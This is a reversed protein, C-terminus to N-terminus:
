ARKCREEKRRWGRREIVCVVVIARRREGGVGAGEHRRRAEAHEVAELGVEIHGRLEVHIEAVHAFPQGVVRRRLLDRQLREEVALNDHQLQRREVRANTGEIRAAGELRGELRDLASAGSADEDEDGVRALRAILPVAAILPAVREVERDRDDDRRRPLPASNRMMTRPPPEVVTVIADPSSFTYTVHARLPKQM